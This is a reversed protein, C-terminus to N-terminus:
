TRRTRRTPPRKEHAAACTDSLGTDKAWGLLSRMFIHASDDTHQSCLPAHPNTACWLVLSAASLSAALSSAHPPPRHSHPTPSM